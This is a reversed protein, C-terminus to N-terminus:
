PVLPLPERSRVTLKGDGIVFSQPATAEVLGALAAAFQRVREVADKERFAVLTIPFRFDITYVIPQPPTMPPNASQKKPM